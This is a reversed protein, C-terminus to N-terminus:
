GLSARVRPCRYAPRGRLLAPLTNAIHATCGSCPLGRRRGVMGGLAAGATSRGRTGASAGFALAYPLWSWWTSKLGLNYLWRARVAGLHLLAFRLGIGASVVIAVALAAAPHARRHHLRGVAARALPKDTRGSDRDRDADLLDNSWGISLQGALVAVAIAADTGAM